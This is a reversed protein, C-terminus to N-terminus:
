LTISWWLAMWLIAAAGLSILLHRRQRRHLRDILAAQTEVAATLRTVLEGVPPRLAPDAWSVMGPLHRHRRWHAAYADPDFWWDALEDNIPHAAYADRDWTGSAALDLVLDTLLANDDYVASANITGAGRDGGSPSGIVLGNDVYGRLIGRTAFGLYGSSFSGTGVYLNGIPGYGGYREFLLSAEFQAMLGVTTPTGNYSLVLQHASSGDGNRLRMQSFGGGNRELDGLFVASGAFTQNDALNAVTKGEVAVVGASVRTLTTDTAHGINVATFHPSDGTGVGQPNGIIQFGGAGSDLTSIYVVDLLAGSIVDGTTAQAGNPRYVKKAGISDVNLTVAGTASANPKWALRLGNSYATLGEGSTVTYANSSGGQTLNGAQWNRWHALRAMLARASDNVTSPAQLEQFNISADASGNSAATTSFDLISM